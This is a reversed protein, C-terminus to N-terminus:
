KVAAAKGGVDLEILRRAYPIPKTKARKAAADLQRKTVPSVPIGVYETLRESDPKRPRAM